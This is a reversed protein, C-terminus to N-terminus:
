SKTVNRRSSRRLCHSLIALLAIQDADFLMLHPGQRRAPDGGATEPSRGGQQRRSRRRRRADVTHRTSPRNALNRTTVTVAHSPIEEDPAEGARGSVDSDGPGIRIAVPYQPGHGPRARTM